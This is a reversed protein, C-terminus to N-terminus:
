VYNKNKQTAQKFSVQNQGVMHVKDLLRDIRKRKEIEDDEPKTTNQNFQGAIPSVVLDLGSLEVVVPEYGFRLLGSVKIIEVSGSIIDLPLGYRFNENVARPPWFFPRFYHVFRHLTAGRQIQAENLSIQGALLQTQIKEYDVEELFSGLYSNILYGALRSIANNPNIRDLM